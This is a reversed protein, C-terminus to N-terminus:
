EETPADEESPPLPPPVHKARVGARHQLIAGLGLTIFAGGLFFVGQTYRWAFIRRITEIFWKMTRSIGAAIAPGLLVLLRYAGGIVFVGIGFALLSRSKIKAGTVIALASALVAGPYLPHVFLGGATKMWSAEYELVEFTFSNGLMLLFIFGLVFWIWVTKWQGVHCIVILSVVATAAFPILFSIPFDMFFARRISVLQIFSMVALSGSIVWGIWWREGAQARSRIENNQWAALLGHGVALVTAIWCFLFAVNQQQWPCDDPIHRFVLGSVPMFLLWGAILGLLIKPLRFELWRQALWLKLGALITAVIALVLGARPSIMYLENLAVFMLGQLTVAFLGSRAVDTGYGKGWQWRALALLLWMYLEFATLTIYVQISEGTQRNSPDILVRGGVILLLLSLWYILRPLKMPNADASTTADM